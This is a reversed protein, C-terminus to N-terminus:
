KLFNVGFALQLGGVNNITKNKLSQVGNGIIPLYYYNFMINMSVNKSQKFSVGIGAFGGAAFHAKTDGLASFFSKSYPNTLVLTPTIGFNVMPSFNGEIDNKFLEKRIAISLPIMYVRNIKDVVVTNGYIDYRDIERSDTVGSISLNFTLDTSKGLPTFLSTFPGFGNEGYGLGLSWRNRPEPTKLKTKIQANIQSNVTILSLCLVFALVKAYLAFNKNKM